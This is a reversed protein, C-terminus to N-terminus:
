ANIPLAALQAPLASSRATTHRKLPKASNAAPSAVDEPIFGYKVRAVVEQLKQAQQLLQSASQSSQAVLQATEQAMNDLEQVTSGTQELSRAQEQSLQSLKDIVEAMTITHNVVNQMSIGATDVLTAGENAHELSSQILTRVDKAANASRQALQRVEAAVVAFGSGHEGARAAEVAANLALINTQFAISDILSVIEGIKRSSENIGNMAHVVQAVLNGCHQADHTAQNALQRASASESASIQAGEQISQVCGTTTQLQSSTNRARQELDANSQAIHASSQLVVNATTRAQHVVSELKLFAERVEMATSSRVYVSSVDLNLQGDPNPRCLDRLEQAALADSRMRLAIIIEVVTQVVVFSAHILVRGFNAETMCFVPWGMQQLRDFLIHHVAITAAAAIIPRWDRYVLLFALFVFVGFHLETLGKSLQIHLSVMFMGVIALGVSSFATGPAIRWIVLGAALLSLAIGTGSLAPGNIVGLVVAGAAGLLLVTFVMRDAVLAIRKLNSDTQSAPLYVM